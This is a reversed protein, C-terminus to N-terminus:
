CSQGKSRAPRPSPLAVFIPTRKPDSASMHLAFPCIRKVWLLSRSLPSASVTVDANDGFRVHETCQSIDAKPWFRVDALENMEDDLVAFGVM